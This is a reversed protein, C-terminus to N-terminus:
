TAATMPIVLTASRFARWEPVAGGPSPDLVARGKGDFLIRGAAFGESLERTLGAFNASLGFSMLTPVMDDIPLPLAKVPRGLIESAAAAADAFSYPTPGALEIIETAVPPTTLADAAVLAIDKTAVMDFPHAEGGGFVPLVGDAKMANAFGLLNEMFYAARVFTFATSPVGALAKEAYHVTV